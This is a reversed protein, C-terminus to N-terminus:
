CRRRQRQGAVAVATLLKPVAAAAALVATSSADPGAVAFELVSAGTAVASLAAAAAAAAVVAVAGEAVEWLLTAGTAAAAVLASLAVTGGAGDLSHPPLPGPVCSAVAAAANAATARDTLLRYLAAGRADEHRRATQCM